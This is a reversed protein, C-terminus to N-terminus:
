GKLEGTHLGVKKADEQGQRYALENHKSQVRKHILKPYRASVAAQIATSRNIMLATSQGQTEVNNEKMIEHLKTRLTSVAGLLYSNRYSKLSYEGTLAKPDEFDLAYLKTANTAMRDLTLRIRNYLTMVLKADNATGIIMYRKQSTESVVHCYFAKSLAVLLYDSWNIKNKTDFAMPHYGIPSKEGSAHAQAVEMSINHRTLLKQIMGLATAAEDPTAGNEVTLRSLKEIRDAIEQLLTSSAHTTM